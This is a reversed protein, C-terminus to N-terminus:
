SILSMEMSSTIAEHASLYFLRSDLVYGPIDSFNLIHDFKGCAFNWDYDKVIEYGKKFINLSDIEKYNLKSTSHVRHFEGFNFIATIKAPSLKEMGMLIKPPYNTKFYDYNLEGRIYNVHIPIGKPNNKYENLPEISGSFSIDSVSIPTAIVVIDYEQPKDSNSLQVLYKGVGHKSIHNIKVNLFINFRPSLKLKDIMNKVLLSNGGKIRHYEYNLHSLCILGSVACMDKQNYITHLVSQIMDTTYSSDLRLDQTLETVTKNVMNSLELIKMLEEINRFTTKNELFNYIKNFKTNFDDIINNFYYPSLGYRWGLKIMNLINSKGMEFKVTDNGLIGFINSYFEEGTLKDLELNLEKSLSTIIKQEDFFMLGGIDLVKDNYHLSEIRGGIRDNTEFMEIDYYDYNALLRALHSGGIGSGIIAVKFRQESNILFFISIIVLTLLLIRNKM